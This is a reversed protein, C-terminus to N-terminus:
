VEHDHGIMDIEESAKKKAEFKVIDVVYTDSMSDHWGRGQEGLFSFQEFPILRCLSRLITSQLGPTEGYENVVKTKTIYKGITRGKLVGEYFMYFIAYIIASILRDLWPNINEMDTAIRDVTDIDSTVLVYIFGFLFTVLLLVLYFIILDVIYNLFRKEKSAFLDPTVKFRDNIM